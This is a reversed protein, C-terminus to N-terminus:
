ESSETWWALLESKLYRVIRGHKRFPPGHRQWRAKEYWAASVKTLAAAERTTLLEDDSKMRTAAKLKGTAASIRLQVGDRKTM